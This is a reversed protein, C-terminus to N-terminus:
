PLDYFYLDGVNAWFITQSKWESIQIQWTDGFCILSYGRHGEEGFVTVGM